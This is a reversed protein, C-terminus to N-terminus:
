EVIDYGGNDKKTIINDKVKYANLIRIYKDPNDTLTQKILKVAVRKARMGNRAEIVMNGIITQLVYRNVM